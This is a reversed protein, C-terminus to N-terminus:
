ALSDSSFWVLSFGVHSALVVVPTLTCGDMQALLEQLLEFHSHFNTLKNRVRVNNIIM